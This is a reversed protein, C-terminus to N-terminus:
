RKEDFKMLVRLVRKPSGGKKRKRLFRSMKITYSNLRKRLNNKGGHTNVEGRELVM